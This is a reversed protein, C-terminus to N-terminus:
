IQYLLHFSMAQKILEMPFLISLDDPTLPKGTQPNLSPALPKPLDPNINYWQGPMEEETLFIKKEENKSM